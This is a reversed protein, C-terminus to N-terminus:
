RRGGRPKHSRKHSRSRHKHGHKTKHSKKVCRGHKMVLGKECGRAKPFHVPPDASGPILTAPTPDEPEPPLSQCADGDCEITASPTAPFGGGERADYLDVAGSDAGVLSAATLFFADSGDASADVFSAGASATGSSILGLCGRAATCSGEGGAEWEYVDPASDTDAGLLADESDFFVRDGDASLDRPKYSDTAAQGSGNAVAGPITSPARPLAGSPDCSVCTLTAIGADYRYVESDGVHTRADTNDYGTLRADSLFILSTGAMSVRGTGTTPPYDGASAAEAGPAIETTIGAHWLFLGTASQYYLYSGDESGGLVGKVATALLESNASGPDYRYLDGAVTYFAPAGDAAATQFTAADSLLETTQGERLFLGREGTLEDEAAFYVRSGDGSIAASQDALAAGPTGHAAGPLLNILRLAGGSWEYLNPEAPDCGGAGPIETAEPTLAACTSFVTDSLEPNAGAFHLGPAEPSATLVGGASDRLSYSRPCEEGARCRRGNLLLGRGLDPSFLQYPVGDPSDGYAGSPGPATINETSWGGGRRALYQSAYPAGQAAEFSASSSYTVAEGDAAAQLVDGGSNAGFGQVSGGNKELPSVMEWARHDVLGAAGAPGVHDFGAFVVLALFLALRGPASLRGLRTPEARRQRPQRRAPSPEDGRM